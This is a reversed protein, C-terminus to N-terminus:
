LADHVGDAGRADEELDSFCSGGCGGAGHGATGGVGAEARTDHEICECPAVDREAYM